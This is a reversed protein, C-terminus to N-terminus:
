CFQQNNMKPILKKTVKSWMKRWQPKLPMKKFTIKTLVEKDQDKEVTGENNNDLSWVVNYDADGIEFEMDNDFFNM